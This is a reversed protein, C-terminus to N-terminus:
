SSTLFDTFVLSHVNQHNVVEISYISAIKKILNLGMGGRESGSRVVQLFSLDTLPECTDSVTIRLDRGSTAAQLDFTGGDSTRVEHRVINQLLEGVAIEVDMVQHPKLRDLGKLVGIFAQRARHIESVDCPYSKHFIVDSTM